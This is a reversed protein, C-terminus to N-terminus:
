YKIFLLYNLARSNNQEKKNVFIIIKNSISRVGSLPVVQLIYKYYILFIWFREWDKFQNFIPIM